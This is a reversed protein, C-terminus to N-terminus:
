VVTTTSTKAKGPEEVIRLGDTSRVTRVIPVRADVLEQRQWVAEPATEVWLKTGFERGGQRYHYLLAGSKDALSKFPDDPFCIATQWQPPAYRFDVRFPEEGKGAAAVALCATWLVARTWSKMRGGEVSEAAAGGGGSLRAKEARRTRESM